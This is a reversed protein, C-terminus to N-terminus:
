REILGSGNMGMRSMASGNIGSYSIGSGVLLTLLM